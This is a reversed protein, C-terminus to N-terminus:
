GGAAQKVLNLRRDLDAHKTAAAKESAEIQAVRRDAAVKADDLAKERAALVASRAAAAEEAAAAASERKVLDAARGDLTASRADLAARAAELQAVDRRHTAEMQALKDKQAQLEGKAQDAARQAAQANAFAEAAVDAREKLGDLAQKYKGPDSLVTLLGFLENTAAPPLFDM